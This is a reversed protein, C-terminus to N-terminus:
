APSDFYGNLFISSKAHCPIVENETSGKRQIVPIPRSTDSNLKMIEAQAIATRKNVWSAIGPQAEVTSGM